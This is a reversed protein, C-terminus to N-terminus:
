SERPDIMGEEDARALDSLHERHYRAERRGKSTLKLKYPNRGPQGNELVGVVELLGKQTAAAVEYRTHGLRELDSTTFTELNDADILLDM